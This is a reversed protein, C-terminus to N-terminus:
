MTRPADVALSRQLGLEPVKKLGIPGEDKLDYFGKITKSLRGPIPEKVQAIDELRGAHDLADAISAHETPVEIAFFDVDAEPDIVEEEETVAVSLHVLDQGHQRLVEPLQVHLIVVEIEEPVADLHQLVVGDHDVVSRIDKM